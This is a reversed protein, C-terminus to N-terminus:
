QIHRKPLAHIQNESSQVKTHVCEAIEAETLDRWLDVGLEHDRMLELEIGYQLGIACEAVGCHRLSQLNDDGCNSLVLNEDSVLSWGVFVITM